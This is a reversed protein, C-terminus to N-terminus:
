RARGDQWTARPGESTLISAGPHSPSILVRLVRPRITFRLPPSLTVAEGDVGAHVLADANVEVQTGTWARAALRPSEGPVGVIVIGLRGTDLGPRTGHVPPSNLAYPNNSVLVLALHRHERGLDDVLRLGPVEAGPALVEDATELLTRLKADRYASRRVADGYIGLSTNNLFTRGNVEAADVLREVGEYFADLAGIVDRRDVGVDLAFHNRTGAPVCVFPLGHEIAVSAVAALSGDGGAVGLVDAGGAAAARATEGLSQDNSLVVVEVGRERARDAVAARLSRGGGSNPNILLVPRSPTSAHSSESSGAPLHLPVPPRKM